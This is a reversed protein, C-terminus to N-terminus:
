RPAQNVDSLEFLPEEFELLGAAAGPGAIPPEDGEIGLIRFVHCVATFRALSVPDSGTDPMAAWAARKLELLQELQEPLLAVKARIM